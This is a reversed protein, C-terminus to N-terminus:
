GADRDARADLLARIRGPGVVCAGLAEVRAVLGRDATVVVVERGADRAAGAVRVIEGDGDAPAAVVAVGPARLTPSAPAAAPEAPLSADRADGEVVAVVEPWRVDGPLGLDAAPLGDRALADLGALLRSTSGARDRWWGDPRSGLLNATDVVLTVERALEDRLMPWARGFGPHLELGGVEDVPVWRLEISEADAVRPAFPRITRATVTTYSWFGLDLVTALVPRIGAPPVGAEEAAERAAGDVASEGAHRAGGPLGWTGGHHSWAVRHQLLVGRDPDHVLLGAAGFAGWFRQGEPSEVWADGSDRHAGRPLEPPRDATM